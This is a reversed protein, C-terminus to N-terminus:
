WWIVVILKGFEKHDVAEVAKWGIRLCAKLSHWNEHRIYGIYQQTPDLVENTAEMVGMGRYNPDVMYGGVYAVPHYKDPVPLRPDLPVINFAGARKHRDEDWVIYHHHDPPLSEFWQVQQQINIESTNIFADKCSNRLEMLWVIDTVTLQKIAYNM